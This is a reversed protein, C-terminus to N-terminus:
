VESRITERPRAIVLLCTSEGANLLPIAIGSFLRDASFTTTSALTYNQPRLADVAHETVRLRARGGHRQRPLICSGKLQVHLGSGRDRGVELGSHFLKAPTSNIQNRGAASRGRLPTTVAM